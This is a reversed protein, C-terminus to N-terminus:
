QQKHANLGNVWWLSSLLCSHVKVIIRELELIDILSPINTALILFGGIFEKITTTLTLPTLIGEYVLERVWICNGFSEEIVLKKLKLM